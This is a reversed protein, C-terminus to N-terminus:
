EGKSWPNMLDFRKSSADNSIKEQKNKLKRNEQQLELDSIREQLERYQKVYVMQNVKKKKKMDNLQNSKILLTKELDSVRKTLEKLSELIQELKEKIQDM